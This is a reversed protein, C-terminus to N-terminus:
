NLAHPPTDDPVRPYVRALEKPLKWHQGLVVALDAPNRAPDTINFITPYPHGLVIGDRVAEAILQEVALADRGRFLGAEADWEFVLDLGCRTSIQQLKFKRYM